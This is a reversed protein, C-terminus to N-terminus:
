DNSVVRTPQSMAAKREVAPHEPTKSAGGGGTVLKFGPQAARAKAAAPTKAKAPPPGPTPPAPGRRPATTPVPLRFRRQPKETPEIVVEPRKPVIREVPKPTVDRDEKVKRVLALARARKVADPLVCTDSVWSSRGPSTSTTM